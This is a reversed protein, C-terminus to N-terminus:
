PCKEAKVKETRTALNSKNEQNTAPLVRQSTNMRRVQRDTIADVMALGRDIATFALWRLPEPPWNWVRRDLADEAAHRRGMVRACLMDGMLCAQPVGHGAYGYGHHVNRHTASTGLTPLFDLTFGIYGGWYTAMSLEAFEPFRERFASTIGEFARVDYPEPLASGYAYSVVKSGGVITNDATLRYNELAEHATYIGERGRWGLAELQADSLPETEFQSVRLPAVARKNYGLANTYANTAVVISDATVIAEDCHVRASKGEEIRRVPTGEYLRVGAEIAAKRLGLAFLGPQFIGGRREHVGCLFAGPIGLDRMDTETLFAVDGGLRRGLDAANRLRDTHKPHVAAMINGHPIYNCEIDYSQMLGVAYDVAHDAFRVLKSAREEGFMRLLTPLDKGITPAVHGANRGSAGSGAFDRELVVVDAGEKRLSLATSLGTYGGGIVAVDARVDERLRPRRDDPASLWISVEEFPFQVTM